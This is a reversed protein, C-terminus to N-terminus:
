ISGNAPFTTIGRSIETEPQLLLTMDFNPQYNGILQQYSGDTKKCNLRVEHDCYPDTPVRAIVAVSSDNLWTGFIITTPFRQNIIFNIYNYVSFYLRSLITICIYNLKSNVMSVSTLYIFIKITVSEICTWINYLTYQAHQFTRYHMLLAAAM